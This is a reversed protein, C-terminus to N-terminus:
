GKQPAQIFELSYESTDLICVDQIEWEMVM